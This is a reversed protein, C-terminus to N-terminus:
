EPIDSAEGGGGLGAREDPSPYRDSLYAAGFEDMLERAKIDYLEYTLTSRISERQAALSRISRIDTVKLIHFGFQSEVIGSLEDQPLVFAVDSFEPVYADRVAYDLDGGKDKTGDTGYELAMDEFSEEGSAIKERIEEALQRDEDNHDADGVLIHSIRRQETDEYENEHAVYYAEIEAETPLVGGETVEDALAQFYYQTETYYKLTDDTIGKERLIDRVGETQYIMDTFQKISDDADDPFVDKGKFYEEMAAAQVMTDLTDARYLTKEDDSLNSSDYGYLFFMLETFANVSNETIEIDGVKALVESNDSGSGCGTLTSAAGLIVAFLLAIAIKFNRATKTKM